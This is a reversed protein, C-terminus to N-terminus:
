SIHNEPSNSLRAFCYAKKKGFLEFVQGFFRKCRWALQIIAEKKCVKREGTWNELHCIKVEAMLIEQETKDSGINEM